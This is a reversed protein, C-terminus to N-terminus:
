VGDPPPNDSQGDRFPSYDEGEKEPDVNPDPNEQPTEKPDSMIYDGINTTMGNTIMHVLFALLAMMM